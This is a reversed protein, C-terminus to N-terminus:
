KVILYYAYKSFKIKEDQTKFYIRWIKLQIKSEIQSIYYNNNNIEYRNYKIKNKNCLFEINFLKRGKIQIVPIDGM